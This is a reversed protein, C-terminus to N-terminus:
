HEGVTICNSIKSHTAIGFFGGLNSRGKIEVNSKSFYVTTNNAEYAIAGVDSAYAPDMNGDEILLNVTSNLELNLITVNSMSSSLM